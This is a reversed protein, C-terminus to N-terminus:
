AVTLFRIKVVNMHTNTHIKTHSHTEKPSILPREKRSVCENRERGREGEM